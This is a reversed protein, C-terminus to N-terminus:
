YRSLSSRYTNEAIHVLAVTTEFSLRVILLILFTLLAGLLPVGIFILWLVSHSIAISSHEAISFLSFATLPTLLAAATIVIFFLSTYIYGAITRTVYANLRFDALTKLFAKFERACQEVVRLFFLTTLGILLLNFILHLAGYVYITYMGGRYPTSSHASFDKIDNYRNIIAHFNVYAMTGFVLLAVFGLIYSGMKGIDPSQETFLIRMERKIRTVNKFSASTLFIISISMFSEVPWMGKNQVFVYKLITLIHNSETIHWADLSYIVSSILLLWSGIVFFPKWFTDKTSLLVYFLLLYALTTMYFEPYTWITKLMNQLYNVDTIPGFYFTIPILFLFSLFYIRKRNNQMRELNVAM